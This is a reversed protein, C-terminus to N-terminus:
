TGPPAHPSGLLGLDPDEVTDKNAKAIQRWRTPDDLEEDAIGWLTDGPRVTYSESEDRPEAAQGDRSDAEAKPKDEQKKPAAAAPPTDSPMKM